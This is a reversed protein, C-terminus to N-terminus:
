RMVLHMRKAARHLLVGGLVLCLVRGPVLAEGAAPPVLPNLPSVNGELLVFMPGLVAAGVLGGAWPARLVTGILSMAGVALWANLLLCAVMPVLPLAGAYFWWAALAAPVILMAQAILLTRVKAALMSRQSGTALWLLEFTGQRQESAFIPAALLIALAGFGRHLLTYAEEAFTPPDMSFVAVAGGALAVAWLRLGLVSRVETIVLKWFDRRYGPRLWLAALRQMVRLREALAIRGADRRNEEDFEHGEQIQRAM